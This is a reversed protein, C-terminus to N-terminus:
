VGIGYLLEEIKTLVRANKYRWYWDWCDSKEPRLIKSKFYKCKKSKPNFRSCEKCMVWGKYPKLYEILIYENKSDKELVKFVVNYELNKYWSGVQFDKITM